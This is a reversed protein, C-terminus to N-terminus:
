DRGGVMDTVRERHGLSYCEDEWFRKEELPGEILLDSSQFNDKVGEERVVLDLTNWM